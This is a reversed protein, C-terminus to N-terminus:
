EGQKEMVSPNRDAFARLKGEGLSPNEKYGVRKGSSKSIVNEISIRGPKKSEV